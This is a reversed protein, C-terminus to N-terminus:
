VQVPAYCMTIKFASEFQNAIRPWKASPVCFRNSFFRLRQYPHRHEARSMHINGSSSSNDNRCSDYQVIIRRIANRIISARCALSVSLSDEFQSTANIFGHPLVFHLLSVQQAGSRSHLWLRIDIHSEQM